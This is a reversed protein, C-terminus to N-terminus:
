FRSYIDRSPQCIRKQQLHFFFLPSFFPKEEVTRQVHQQNPEYSKWRDFHPLVSIRILVKKLFFFCFMQSGTSNEISELPIWSDLQDPWAYQYM